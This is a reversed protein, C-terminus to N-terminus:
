DQDLPNPEADFDEPVEPTISKMIDRLANPVEQVLNPQPVPKSQKPPKLGNKTDIFQRREETGVNIPASALAQKIQLIDFDVAVGRASRATKAM